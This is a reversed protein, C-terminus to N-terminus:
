DHPAIGGKIMSRGLARFASGARRGVGAELRVGSARHASEFRRGEDHYQFGIQSSRLREVLQAAKTKSAQKSKFGFEHDLWSAIVETATDSASM